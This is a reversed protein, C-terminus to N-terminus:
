GSHPQRRPWRHERRRVLALIVREAEAWEYMVQRYSLRLVCYGRELLALDRRRDSEFFEGTAHFGYGDLELVLREGIIVDVRGVGAITVQTRVRIRHRGLRYRALTELGSQSSPDALELLRRSQQPFLAFAEGLRQPTVLKRNLACDIAVLAMERSTCRAYHALAIPLPDVANRIEGPEPHWHVVAGGPAAAFAVKDTAPSRLRSSNRAVRVHTTEDDNAWIGALVLASQCTLAGGIRVARLIEPNAWTEAYWARRVRIVGSHRAAGIAYSTAGADLLSSRHAVGHASRLAQGIIDM